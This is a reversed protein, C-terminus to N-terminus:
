YRRCSQATHTSMGAAAAGPRAAGLLALRRPPAAFWVFNPAHPSM